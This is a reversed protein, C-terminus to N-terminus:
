EAVTEDENQSHIVDNSNWFELPEIRVMYWMGQCFDNLSKKTMWFEPHCKIQAVKNQFKNQLHANSPLPLFDNINGVLYCIVEM